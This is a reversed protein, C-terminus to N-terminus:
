KLLGKKIVDNRQAFCHFSYYQGVMLRQISGLCVGCLCATAMKVETVLLKYFHRNNLKCTLDDCSSFATDKYEASCIWIISGSKLKAFFFLLLLLSEHSWSWRFSCLAVSIPLPWSCTIYLPFTQKCIRHFYVTKSLVILFSAVSM